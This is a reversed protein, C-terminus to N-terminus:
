KEKKGSVRDVAESAAGLLGRGFRSLGGVLPSWGPPAEPPVDGPHRVADVVAGPDLPHAELARGAADFVAGVKLAAKEVAADFEPSVAVGEPAEDRGVGKPGFVRSIVGEASRTLADLGEILDSRGEAKPPPPAEHVEEPTEVTDDPEAM